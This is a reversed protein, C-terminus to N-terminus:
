DGRPPSEKREIAALRALAKQLELEAAARATFIRYVSDILMDDDMPADGVFALHGIVGGDRGLIPLGLYSERGCERPFTQALGSPQFYPRGDKLVRECPTGALEYERAAGFGDGRWVALMRARTVPHDACETIFVCEVCLARAFQRVLARFFREGTQGATGDAIADVVEEIRRVRTIDTDLGVIRYPTGNAHRIAAGRSLMWRWRGDAHRVRHAHEYRESRQQLHAQLAQLAGDRDEPHLVAQWADLALRDGGNAMGLMHKWRPSVWVTGDRLDHEWVGDQAGRVALVYRQESAQLAEEYRRTGDQAQLAAERQQQADDQLAAIRHQLDRWERGHVSADRAASGAGLLALLIRLAGLVWRVHVALQAGVLAAAAIVLGGIL